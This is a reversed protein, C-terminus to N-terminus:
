LLRGKNIYFVKTIERKAMEVTGDPKKGLYGVFAPQGAIEDILQQMIDKDHDTNTHLEM